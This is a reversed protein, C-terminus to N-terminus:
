NNIAPQAVIGDIAAPPTFYGSVFVLLTLAAGEISEPLDVGFQTKIVWVLITTFAVAATSAYVKRAPRNTQMQAM